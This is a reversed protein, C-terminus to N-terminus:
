RKFCNKIHVKEKLLRTIMTYKRVPSVSQLEIFTKMAKDIGSPLTTSHIHTQRDLITSRISKDGIGLFDNGHEM